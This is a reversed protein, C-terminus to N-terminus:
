RGKGLLMVRITKLAIAADLLLSYNKIYYLDYAVKQYADEISAGYPYSVQAWGTIGPKVLYRVDYYPIERRLHGDFEPREPRPGVLSMEGKLVNWLQPLEDMRTLRLVRGVRTVRPDKDKAWQIGQQEANRDMSRFKYVRFKKGHLGTRIQSYFIPGPSDLKIAIAALLAIPLTVILLCGAVVLDILQKLRANLRDHLLSFGSTFAFWDDKICLPPIKQWFKEYFEAWNYVYVGRLRMKMLERVLEDSLQKVTDNILVGSWSQESWIAFNEMKDVLFCKNEEVSFNVQTQNEALFVFETKPSIVQYELGFGIAKEGTGIVLFRSQEEKRKIWKETALRWALAWLTFLVVSILLIGRGVLPESGWLGSLYIHELGMLFALHLCVIAGIIDSTLLLWTITSGSTLSNM